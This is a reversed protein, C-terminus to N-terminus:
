AGIVLQEDGFLLGQAPKTPWPLVVAAPAPADLEAALELLDGTGFGDGEIGALMDLQTGKTAFNGAGMDLWNRAM